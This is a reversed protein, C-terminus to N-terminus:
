PPRLRTSSIRDSGVEGAWWVQENKSLTSAADQLATLKKELREIVKGADLRDGLSIFLEVSPCTSM